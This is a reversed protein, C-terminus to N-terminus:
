WSDDFEWGRILLYINYRLREYFSKPKSSILCFDRNEINAKTTEASHALDRVAKVLWSPSQTM